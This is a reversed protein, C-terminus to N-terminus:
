LQMFLRIEDNFILGSLIVGAIGLEGFFLGRLNFM